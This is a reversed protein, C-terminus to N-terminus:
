RSFAFFMFCFCRLEHSKEWLLTSEHTNAKKSLIKAGLRCSLDPNISTSACSVLRVPSNRSHVRHLVIFAWARCIIVAARRREATCVITPNKKTPLVTHASSVDNKVSFRLLFFYFIIFLFFFQKYLLNPFINNENNDNNNNDHNNNNNNLSMFHNQLRSHLM